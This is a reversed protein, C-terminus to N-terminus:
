ISKRTKRKVKIKKLRRKKQTKRRGWGTNRPSLEEKAEHEKLEAASLSKNVRCSFDVINIGDYGLGKLYKILQSIYTEEINESDHAPVPIMPNSIGTSTYLEILDDRISEWVDGVYSPNSSVHYKSLIKEFEDPTLGTIFKPKLADTLNNFRNLILTFIDTERDGKISTFYKEGLLTACMLAKLERPNTGTAFLKMCGFKYINDVPKYYNTVWESVEEVSKFPSLNDGDNYLSALGLYPGFKRRVYNIHNDRIDHISSVPVSRLGQENIDFKHEALNDGFKLLSDPNNTSDIVYIGDPIQESKERPKPVFSYKHQTTSKIIKFRSRSFIAEETRKKALKISSENLPIYRSSPQRREIAEDMIDNLGEYGRMEEFRILERRLKVLIKYTTFDPQMRETAVIANAIEEEFKRQIANGFNFCGPIGAASLIRVNLPIKYAPDVIDEGHSQVFITIIKKPM